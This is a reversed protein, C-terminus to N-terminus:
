REAMKPIAGFKKEYQHISEGLMNSLVVAYAPATIVRTHIRPAELEGYGQGFDFLFEFANYGIQFNNVYKGELDIQEPMYPEEMASRKIAQM